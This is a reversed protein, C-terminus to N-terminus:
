WDGFDCPTIFMACVLFLGVDAIPCILEGLNINFHYFMDTDQCSQGTAREIIKTPQLEVLASPSLMESHKNSESFEEGMTDKSEVYSEITSAVDRQFNM